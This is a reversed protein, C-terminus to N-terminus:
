TAASWDWISIINNITITQEVTLKAESTFVAFEGLEFLINSAYNVLLFPNPITFTVVSSGNWSGSQCQGM